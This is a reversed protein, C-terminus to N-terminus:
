NCAASLCGNCVFAREDRSSGRGMYRHPPPLPIPGNVREVEGSHDRVLGQPPIPLRAQSLILHHCCRAPELGALPVVEDNAKTRAREGFASYDLLQRCKDSRGTRPPARRDTPLRAKQQYRLLGVPSSVLMSLSVRTRVALRASRGM